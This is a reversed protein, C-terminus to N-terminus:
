ESYKLKVFFKEDVAGLLKAVSPAVIVIVESSYANEPMKGIVKVFVVKGSMNSIAIYSGAKASRHLCYLDTKQSGKRQWFAAGRQEVAKKQKAFKEKYIDSRTDPSVKRLNRTSDPVGEIHIWGVHLIQGPKITNDPLNNWKIVSDPPMHFLTKAIKYLNDKKQVKFMLPAFKWRKFNEGKFRKIAANPIPVRIVQGVSVVNNKLNPNHPYLEEENLGYFRALSYLTQGRQIRHEMLKEGTQDNLSIFLTDKYNLYKLSDPRTRAQLAFTAIAFVLCLLRYRKETLINILTNMTFLYIYDKILIKV